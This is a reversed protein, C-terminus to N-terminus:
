ERPGSRLELSYDQVPAQAVIMLRILRDAAAGMGLSGNEWRSVTKPTVGMHAAIDVGSWRLGKRM